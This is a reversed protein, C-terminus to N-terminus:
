VSVAMSMEEFAAIIDAKFKELDDHDNPVRKFLTGQEQLRHRQDPDLDGGDAAYKAFVAVPVSDCRKENRLSRKAFDAEVIIWNVQRSRVGSEELCEFLDALTHGTPIEGFGAEIVIPKGDAAHECIQHGLAVRARALWIPLAEDPLDFLLTSLDVTRLDEGPKLWVTVSDGYLRRRGDVEFTQTVRCDDLELIHNVAQGAFLERDSIFLAENEGGLYDMLTKAATSKGSAWQGLVGVIIAANLEMM